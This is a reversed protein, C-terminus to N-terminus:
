EINLLILYGFIMAFYVQALALLQVKQVIIVLETKMFVLLKLHGM